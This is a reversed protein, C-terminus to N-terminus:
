ISRQYVHNKRIFEELIDIEKDFKNTENEDYEEKEKNKDCHADIFVVPLEPHDNGKPKM